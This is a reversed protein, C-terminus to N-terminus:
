PAPTASSAAAKISFSKAAGRTRGSRRLRSNPVLSPLGIASAGNPPQTSIQPGDALPL